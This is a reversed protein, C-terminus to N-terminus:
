RPREGAAEERDAPHLRLAYGRLADLIFWAVLTGAVILAVPGDDVRRRSLALGVGTAVACAGASFVVAFAFERWLRVDTKDGIKRRPQVIARDNRYEWAIRSRELYLRVARRSMLTLLLLALALVVWSSGGFRHADVATALTVTGLALSGVFDAFFWAPVLLGAVVRSTADLRLNTLAAAREGTHDHDLMALAWQETRRLRARLTFQDVALAVAALSAVVAVVAGLSKLLDGM